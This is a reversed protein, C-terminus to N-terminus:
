QTVLLKETIVEAGMVFQVMYIGPALESEFTIITNLSGDVVYLQNYAMRGMADIVSVQVKESPINTINVNLLQGSLPNPYLSAEAAFGGEKEDFAPTMVGFEDMTSGGIYIYRANGYTGVGYGFNPRYRVRYYSNNLLAQPSTFSLNLSSTIAPVVFPLGITSTGVCDSVQTFEVTYSTAGCVFPKGQLVSGKQLVAECRQGVKVEVSAHPAISIACVDTGPVVITEGEPLNYTVDITVDYTGNHQLALVSSSLPIQSSATISTPGGPTPATPTFNFTYSNAGTWAPKFNSCLDYSGPGGSCRSDMLAQVCVTFPGLVGDYSRVAVYYTNGETLGGTTMIEGGVVAIDNEMDVQAGASNHLELVLNSTATTTVVRLATSPAVIKYWVDQGGGGLVNALNGQPSATAGVLTGNFCNGVPFAAGGSNSVQQAGTFGDNAVAFSCDSCSYYCVKPLTQNTTGVTLMRNGFNNCGGPVSESFPWDNGNVYKFEYYYGEYLNLTVEYTGDSNADTMVIGGPNWNPYGNTGFSGAMHIGNASITENYMNVRFTVAHLAPLATCDTCSSFCALPITTSALAPVTLTRNNGNGCFGGLNGEYNVDNIFKYEYSAGQPLNVTYAYVGGGMDTMLQPTSWNAPNFNGNVYVNGGVTENSMNVQFTVNNVAPCDDCLGFCVVDVPTDVGPVTYTRNNGNGCPAGLNGEYNTNNIFKYEHSSGPTLAIEYAYIGGGMDTMTQPSWGSFSGAVRVPGGITQQSMNVQFTVNVPPLPSNVTYTYNGVGTNKFRITVKDADAVPPNVVTTTFYYYAVTTAAPQAPITASGVNGVFVVPILSSTVFGNTTYRVYCLEEPSPAASATVTLNVPDTDNISGDVPIQTATSMTVPAASTEMFIAQTNVNGNDIWNMTYWKDNTVTISNNGGGMTTTQLTNMGYPTNGWNNLWPNGAPGSSFKFEYFGGVINGGSSAVSFISQWRATGTTIKALTGGPLSNANALVVNTPYNAWGNWAGPMNLGETANIQAWSVLTCFAAMTSFLIKKM